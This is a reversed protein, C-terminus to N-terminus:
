THPIGAETALAAVLAPRDTTGTHEAYHAIAGLMRAEYDRRIDEHLHPLTATEAYDRIARIADGRAFEATRAHATPNPQPYTEVYGM